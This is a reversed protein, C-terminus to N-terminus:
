EKIREIVGELAVHHTKIGIEDSGAGFLLAILETYNLVPIQLELGMEQKLIGQFRDLTLLCGPCHVLILDPNM